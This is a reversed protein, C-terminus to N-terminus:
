GAECAAAILEMAKTKAEDHTIRGDARLKRAVFEGYPRAVDYAFVREFEQGQALTELLFAHGIVEDILDLEGGQQAYRNPVSADAIAAAAGLAMYAITLADPREVPTASVVPDPEQRAVKLVQKWHNLQAEWTENTGFRVMSLRLRSVYDPDDAIATAEAAMLTNGVFSLGCQELAMMGPMTGRALAEALETGIRDVVVVMPETATGLAVHVDADNIPLTSIVALWAVVDDAMGQHTHDFHPHQMLLRHLREIPPVSRKNESTKM